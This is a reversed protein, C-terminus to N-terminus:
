SGQNEQSEALAARVKKEPLDTYRGGEIMQWQGSSLRVLAGKAGTKLIEIVGFVECSEPLTDTCQSYDGELYIAIRGLRM